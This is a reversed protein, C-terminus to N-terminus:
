SLCPTRRKGAGRKKIRPMEERKWREIEEEDRQYARNEPKQSTWGLRQKLIKRVHELHYEIGFHREIVETVRNATWLDNGWGHATAGKLLLKELEGEQAESMRPKPGPHPKAALGDPGEETMRQWRLMSSHSSGVIRAVEAQSHGQALLAIARRRRRELEEASGKPRM